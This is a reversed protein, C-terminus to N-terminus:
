LAKLLSKLAKFAKKFPNFPGIGGTKGEDRFISESVSAGFVENEALREAELDKLFTLLALQGKKPRFVVAM